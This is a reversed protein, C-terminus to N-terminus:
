LIVHELHQKILVVVRRHSSEVGTGRTYAHYGIGVCCLDDLARPHESCRVALLNCCHNGIEGQKVLM